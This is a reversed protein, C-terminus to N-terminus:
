LTKSCTIFFSPPCHHDIPVFVVKKLQSLLSAVSLNQGTMRVTAVWIMRSALAAAFCFVFFLLTFTLGLLVAWCRNQRREERGEAQTLLQSPLLTKL